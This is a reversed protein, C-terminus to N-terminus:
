GKDPLFGCLRAAAGIHEALEPPIAGGEGKAAFLQWPRIRLERAISAVMDPKPWHKGAEYYWVTQESVGLLEALGAQTLGRDDRFRKLNQTFVEGLNM